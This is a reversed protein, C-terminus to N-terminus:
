SLNFSSPPFPDRVVGYNSENVGPKLRTASANPGALRKLPKRTRSFRQFPKSM